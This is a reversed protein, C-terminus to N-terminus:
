FDEKIEDRALLPEAANALFVIAEPMGPARAFQRCLDLTRRLSRVIDGEDFLTARRMEDWTAGSAWLETLPAFTPSFEISVDVEFERQLKFLRRGVENIKELAYDVQPTVRFHNNDQRRGNETVLCTLIAAFESPKLKELIGSLAVESLFLENTGRIGIALRGLHTPKDGDLYGELRLINALAEFERWYKTTERELRRDVDKIRKELLRLRDSQKSCPKQVPCGHCPMAYAENLMGSIQSRVADLAEKGENLHLARETMKLQKHMTKIAELRKAYLPLDGLEAPCLPQSLRDHEEQWVMKQEFLPDLTQNVMFQGFSHEILDKADQLSHRELLNLVMGYSPTFRSSLPDAPAVALKAADEVSEFPHHLVVVHGVEDM